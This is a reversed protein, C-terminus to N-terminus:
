RPCSPSQRHRHGGPQPIQGRQTQAECGGARSHGRSGAAAQGREAHAGGAPIGGGRAVARGEVAGRRPALAQSPRFHSRIGDETRRRGPGQRAGTSGDGGAGGGLTGPTPQAPAAPPAPWPVGQPGPGKGTPERELGSGVAHRPAARPAPSTERHEAATCPLSPHAIAARPNASRRRLRAVAGGVPTTASRRRTPTSRRPLVRLGQAQVLGALDGTTPKTVPTRQRASGSQGHEAARLTRGGLAAPQRRSHNTPRKGAATRRTEHLRAPPALRPCGSATPGGRGCTKRLRPRRLRGAAPRPESRRSREAEAPKKAGRGTKGAVCPPWMRTRSPRAPRRTGTHANASTAGSSTRPGHTSASPRWTPGASGAGSARGQRRTAGVTACSRGYSPQSGGATPKCRPGSSKKRPRPARM